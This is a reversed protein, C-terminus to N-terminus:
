TPVLHTEDEQESELEDEAALAIRFIRRAYASLSRDSRAAIEKLRVKMEAPVEVSLIAKSSDRPM